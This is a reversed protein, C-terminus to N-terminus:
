QVIYLQINLYKEGNKDVTDIYIHVPSRASVTDVIKYIKKNLIKDRRKHKYILSKYNQQRKMYKVSHLIALEILDVGLM